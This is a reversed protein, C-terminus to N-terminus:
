GPYPEFIQAVILPINEAREAPDYDLEGVAAAHWVHKQDQNDYIDVSIAREMYSYGYPRYFQAALAERHYVVIKVSVDGGSEMFKLGRKELERAFAVRIRELEMQPITELNGETFEMFSYTRYLDFRGSPDMDSYIRVSSGCASLLLAAVLSILHIKYKMIPLNKYGSVFVFDIGSIFSRDAAGFPVM